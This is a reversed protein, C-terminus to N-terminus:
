VLEKEEALWQPLSVVHVRSAAKPPEIEIESLPLWAKHGDANRVLVAAETRKIVFVDLDIIDSRMYNELFNTKPRAAPFGGWPGAYHLCRVM